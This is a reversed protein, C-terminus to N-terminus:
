IFRNKKTDLTNVRSTTVGTNYKNAVCGTSQNLNEIKNLIKQKQFEMNERISEDYRRIRNTVGKIKFALDYMTLLEGTLDQRSSIINVADSLAPDKDLYICLTEDLEIIQEILVERDAVAKIIGEADLISMQSTIDEIERFLNFEQTLINFEINYTKM